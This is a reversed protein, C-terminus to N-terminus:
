RRDVELGRDPTYRIRYDALQGWGDEDVVLAPLRYLVPSKAWVKPTGAWLATVADDHSLASPLRVACSALISAVDPQPAVDRPVRVSASAGPLWCPTHWEGSADRQVLVVELSRDGDRVQGQGQADDDTDGVSGSVWGLIPRGPKSPDAIQFKEADAARRQQEEQWEAYAKAIAEQWSIPGVNEQGYAASVLPAIDTPLELVGGFRDHLAAAARLLPYAGYVAIGGPDLRPPGDGLGVGTIFAQARRLKPPRGCQGKGREHRHLRGMRQLVLDIPALDTILLDFDVDLSQEVVQSAVVIHRAPREPGASPPGFRRLMEADNRVRDAVIFRSHAVSVEGPFAESLAVATRLVRSVTNRVVVACGGDSLRDRLLGILADTEDDGQSEVVDIDVTTRRSSPESRRTAVRAGETWSILPYGEAGEDGGGSAFRHEKTALARGRRYAGLLSYRRRAPLTASLAVVPVGYAGLWTMVKLLYSSMFVDYAHVEDIVVVKGALALHRLVLHRAKLGAFLLQDITAVVFNALHSKKRGSLWAHAVVGHGHNRGGEQSVEDCGVESPAGADLMGKFLRNFRAKGHSLTIAGVPQEGDGMADLWAVVRSFMADTTAQTPLAVYLGGAGWRRAMIEAAALAAETKGEGMPAEIIVLGPEPMQEAVECAARQVPRLTAGEPLRFRLRFLEDAAVGGTDPRWPGLLRLRHVASRNAAQDETDVVGEPNTYPHLTENSAIWDALIVLGSALVQFSTTLEVNAWDDLHDAAGTRDAVRGILEAQVAKWVGEGFLSPHEEPRTEQIYPSDPPAGHHGAVIVAWPTARLASWGRDILWRRLLHYSAIAHPLPQADVLSGKSLPLELGCARMVHALQECQLAFAPTAKGLDHLAALFMVACKAAGRDGAFPAALLRVVTDPLWTEFLDAAVSAADDMHRWLPLWKGDANPSKAWVSLAATSLGV